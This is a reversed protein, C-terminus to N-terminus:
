KYLDVTCTNHLDSYRLIKYKEKYRQVHKRKVYAYKNDIIQMHTSKRNFKNSSSVIYYNKSKAVSICTNTYSIYTRSANTCIPIVYDILWNCVYENVYM